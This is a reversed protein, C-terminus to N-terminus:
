EEDVRCNDLLYSIADDVSQRKRRKAQLKGALEFLRAHNEPSVKLNKKEVIERKEGKEVWDGKEV